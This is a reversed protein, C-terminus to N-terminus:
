GVRFGRAVRMSREDGEPAGVVRDHTHAHNHPANFNHIRTLTTHTSAVLTGVENDKLNRRWKRTM